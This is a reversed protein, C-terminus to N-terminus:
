VFEAMLAPPSVRSGQAPSIKRVRSGSSGGPVGHSPGPASCRGKSSVPSPSAWQRARLTVKSSLVIRSKPDRPSATVPSGKCSRCAVSRQAGWRYAVVSLPAASDASDIRVPAPRGIRPRCGPCRIPRQFPAASLQCRNLLARFRPRDGTQCNWIDRHVTPHRPWDLSRCVVRPM